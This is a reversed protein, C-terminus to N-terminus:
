KTANWRVWIGVTALLSKTTNCPLSYTGSVAGGIAFDVKLIKAVYLM